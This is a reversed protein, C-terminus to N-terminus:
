LGLCVCVGRIIINESAHPTYYCHTHTHKNDGTRHHSRWISSACNWGVGETVAWEFGSVSFVCLRVRYVMGKFHNLSLCFLSFVIIADSLSEGLLSHSHCVLPTEFTLSYVCTQPESVSSLKSSSGCVLLVKLLSMLDWCGGNVPLFCIWLCTVILCLSLINLGQDTQEQKRMFRRRADVHWYVHQESDGM